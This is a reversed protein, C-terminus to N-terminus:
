HDEGKLRKLEKHFGEVNKKTIVRHPVWIRGNKDANYKKLISDDGRALGAMIKVSEKGFKYPSQVVTGFVHGDKIGQLTEENEDFGILALEGLRSGKEFEKVGELMAPPNYAWLGVFASLRKKEDKALTQDVKKRCTAQDADDTTTDVLEYKGFRAPYKNDIVKKLEDAAQKRGGALSVCVGERRQQANLVDLKGVFLVFKGGDPVAQKLLEGVAEGAEVNNTGLYCRRVELASPDKTEDVDSDVMLLPVKDNVERYFDVQSDVNNPSVAIAKVGKALLDEILKRQEEVTGRPPMRFEVEVDGLEDASDRAGTEAIKWFEFANNSVFAVKLKNSKKGCAPLAALVAPVVLLALWRLSKM